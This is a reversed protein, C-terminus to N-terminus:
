LHHIIVSSTRVAQLVALTTDMRFLRESTQHCSGVSIETCFGKFTMDAIREHEYGTKHNWDRPNLVVVSAPQDSLGKDSTATFTRGTGAGM